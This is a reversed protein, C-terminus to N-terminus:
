RNYAYTMGTMPIVYQLVFMTLTYAQTSMGIDKFDEICEQKESDYKFALAYPTIGALSIVWILVLVIRAHFLKM